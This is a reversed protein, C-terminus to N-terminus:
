NSKKSKKLNNLSEKLLRNQSLITQNSMMLQLKTENLYKMKIDLIFEQLIATTIVILAFFNVILELLDVSEKFSYILVILILQEIAFLLIFSLKFFSNHKKIFEKCLDLNKDLYNLNKPLVIILFISFVIFIISM